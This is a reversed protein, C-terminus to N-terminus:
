GVVRVVCGEGGPDASKVRIFGMLGEPPRPFDWPKLGRTVDLYSAHILKPLSTLYCNRFKIM